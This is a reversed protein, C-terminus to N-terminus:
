QFNAPRGLPKAAPGNGQGEVPRAVPIVQPTDQTNKSVEGGGGTLQKKVRDITSLRPAPNSAVTPMDQLEPIYATMFQIEDETYGEAALRNIQDRWERRREILAMAASTKVANTANFKNARQTEAALAEENARKHDPDVRLLSYTLVGAILASLPLGYQIWASQWGQLAQGREVAFFTIMNAAAFLFWVGEIALGIGKQSGRWRSSIFGVGAVIAAVEVMLPFAVRIITLVSSIAGDQAVVTYTAAQSLVLMVAHAGTILIVAALVGYLLYNLYGKANEKAEAAQLPYKSDNM